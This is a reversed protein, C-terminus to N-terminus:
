RLLTDADSCARRMDVWEGWDLPVSDDTHGHKGDVRRACATLEALAAELTTTRNWDFKKSRTERGHAPVRGRRHASIM